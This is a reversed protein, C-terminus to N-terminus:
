SDPESLNLIAEDSGQPFGEQKRFSPDKLKEALLGLFHERRAADSPFTLGLCEVAGGMKGSSMKLQDSM